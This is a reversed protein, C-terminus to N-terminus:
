SVGIQERPRPPQQVGHEGRQRLLLLAMGATLALYVLAFVVLLIWVGDRPTVGDEVSMLNQVVFPQRGFETVFWGMEMAAFGLVTCLAVARLLWGEPDIRKRLWVGGWFWAAVLLLFLGLGVMIQFPFHVPRPDPQQDAPFDNLGQVTHNPDYFGLFSLAKPIEIAYRTEHTSPNPYGGIRLPAGDETQWQGEMAAFKTPESHAVFKAAFDGSIVQLPIAVAAVALAIALAAKNYRSRDGRLMALAYIGAVGFAASVYAAMTGHAVETPMARSFMADIPHVTTVVGNAAAFGEPTNMWANASIVFFASAASAIILPFSCLWHTRPSLRDWGFLYLALFIAETFFAFGELGFPFGIVAGSFDMFRPWLLGFEFSLVTGSVAGVAFLVSAVRGWRMAMDRYMRDGTRLWMGEAICLMVPLGIGLMAFVIHFGLSMGMLARAAHLTDFM